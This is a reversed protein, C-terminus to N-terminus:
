QGGNGILDVESRRAAQVFRRVRELDKAFRVPHGQPDVRNTGTCSDVGAPAVAQVAEYVNEPSLGGALIVPIESAAVLQRATEWHCAIGTIGVFGDVPESASGTGDSLVTDTLFLDSIPQFLAALAMTPINAAHPSRGIPITRMIATDPYRSRIETQLEVFRYCIPDVPVDLPLMDCFHIIDPRYYDLTQFVIESNSFLPILSSKRGNQQVTRVTDRIVPLRWNHADLIVSGIHDVDVACLQLVEEPTQIEYIQTIL